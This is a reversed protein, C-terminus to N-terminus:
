FFLSYVREISNHKEKINIIETKVMVYFDKTIKSDKDHYKKM